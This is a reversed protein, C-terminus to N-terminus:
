GASKLRTSVRPGHAETPSSVLPRTGVEHQWRLLDDDTRPLCLDDVGQVQPRVCLTEDENVVITRLVLDGNYQGSLEFQTMIQMPGQYTGPDMSQRRLRMTTSFATHISLAVLLLM